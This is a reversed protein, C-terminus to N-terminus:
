VIKNDLDRMNTKVFSVQSIFGKVKKKLALFEIHYCYKNSKLYFTQDTFLTFLRM